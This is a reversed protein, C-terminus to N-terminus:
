FLFDQQTIINNGVGTVGLLTIQQTGDITIVTNGGGALITLRTGIDAATIDPTYLSLNLLDQNTLTGNGNADFDSIVDSGFSPGFVF